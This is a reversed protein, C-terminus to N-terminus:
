DDEWLSGAAWDYQGPATHNYGGSVSSYTGSAENGRGGSVSAWDGIATNYIGGSVSSRTGSATNAGGGSVSSSDDSAENLYGGSVSSYSGSATNLRGGSVTSQTGIDHDTLAPDGALNERGGLIASYDAFAVNGEWSNDGGGGAVSSNDGSAENFRGGSVSAYNGSAENYRGGSISAYNGSATNDIGGSVSAEMGSATNDYGGSVTSQTGIDHDTLAPDGTLNDYGGLIASSDAFALNYWGGSVSSAFGSATNNNGGSVTSQTGIDHDTLAPDGALNDKGGLIASYDAFAVNGDVSSEGGGGAVSSYDGSAENYRGGIVSALDGSATNWGGGSVSSFYGDAVNYSGGSVSSFDSATNSSGGSVSSYSGSATNATGGSVSSYDGSATNVSGGSVTSQTGIDHDTLAPDGALNDRGGLIASYDAFALNGDVSIEGGGGGVFSATGSAINYQGGSVSSYVGSAENYRGGSVSSYNASAINHEGGSVSSVYAGTENWSGGSISTFFDSAHNEEGGSVSTYLGSAENSYGGSVSSYGGSAHNEEGGSVSSGTGSASNEKGGSVSAWDGSITNWRGVVLGGYSSYNHEDGVVINHSGTRNDWSGRLENYGVVLNGLGNVAGDTTGTGNVIHVNVGSFTIDSGARTVGALLTTLQDITTQLGSVIADVEAKTYYSDGHSHGTAAFASADQGDLTDADGAGTAYAATDADGAATAYTVTIDDPIQADSATDVLDAFSTTKAHHASAEATHTAIDADIEGSEELDAPEIGAVTEADGAAIALLTSVIRERPELFEGDVIVELWRPGSFLAPTFPASQGLLVQFLGETVPVTMPGETWVVSGETEQDYLSFVIEVDDTVPTGDADALYGQHHILGPVAAQALHPRVWLTSSFAVITFLM